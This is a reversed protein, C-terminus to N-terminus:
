LLEYRNLKPHIPPSPNLSYHQLLNPPTPLTFISDRSANMLSSSTRSHFVNRSDEMATFPFFGYVAVIIYKCKNGCWKEDSGKKVGTKRLRQKILKKGMKWVDRKKNYGDLWHHVLMHRSVHRGVATPGWRIRMLCKLVCHKYLIDM